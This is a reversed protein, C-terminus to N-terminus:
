RYVVNAMQQAVHDRLWIALIQFSPLLSSEHWWLNQPMSTLGSLFVIISTIVIGQMAGVVCGGLREMFATHQYTQKFRALLCKQIFSGVLITVVFLSIFTVAFRKKYPPIVNQLTASFNDSFHLSVWFGIVWLLLAMIEKSFGRLTGIIMTACILVVISYDIWIFPKTALPIV